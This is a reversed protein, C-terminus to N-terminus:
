REQIQEFPGTFNNLRAGLDPFGAKTLRMAERLDPHDAVNTLGHGGRAPGPLAMLTHRSGPQVAVGVFMPLVSRDATFLSGLFSARPSCRRVGAFLGLRIGYASGNVM